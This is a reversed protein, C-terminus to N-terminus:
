TLNKMRLILLQRGHAAHLLASAADWLESGLLLLEPDERMLQM